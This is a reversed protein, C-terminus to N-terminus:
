WSENTIMEGAIMDSYDQKVNGITPQNGCFAMMVSDADDPSKGVRSIYQEKTEIDELKENTSRSRLATVQSTYEDWEEEWDDVFNPGYVMKGDRHADRMAIYCQTRMNRYNKKNTASAGGKFQIVPYGKDMLYGATGAGVGITDVSFYDTEQNLEYDNFIAIAEKAVKIPSESTPFNFKRKELAIVQSDTFKVITIVSSDIGGDGVDVSVVYYPISGDNIEERDQAASLWTYTILQNKSATPFNGMARSQYIESTEGYKTKMSLLWDDSILGEADDPTIHMRYYMGRLNAKMHHNFFEGEGRTPNGIEVSVSGPTSLAGEIVPFMKDIREAGAEDIVFLQPKAHFGALNNPDSATEATVGWTMDNCVIVDTANITLIDKYEDIAGNYIETYRPWLRKRLQDEKPATCAIIGHTTFNWVHMLLGLFYTKGTGHCSKITIRPKGEHNYKTPLGLAKRRVDFVAEIAHIQWALPKARLVHRIMKEPDSFTIKVWEALLEENTM